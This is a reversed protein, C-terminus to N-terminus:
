TLRNPRLTRFLDVISIEADSFTTNMLNAKVPKDVILPEAIKLWKILEQTFHETDTPDVISGNIGDDILSSAGANYSVISPLGALLAENVVVGFPEYLSALTFVHGVRYWAALEVGEYWGVFQVHSLIELESALAELNELEEGNGVILLVTNDIQTLVIAYARLLLDIGKLEVLRGVFLLIGKGFLDYDAVIKKFLEESKVLQHRFTQEDHIIPVVASPATIKFANEYHNKIEHSSFIWGDAQQRLLWRAVHRRLADTKIMEQNDDTWIIHLFRSRKMRKLFAVICTTVSFESTIIVDPDFEDIYEQIGFPVVRDLIKIKRTLYVPNTDLRTRLEDQDFHQNANNETLLVLKLKSIKEMTNFIDLRYPTLSLHIVLLRLKTSSRPSKM